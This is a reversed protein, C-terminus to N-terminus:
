EEDSKKSNNILRELEDIKSDLASFRSDIKKERKVIEEEINSKWSFWEKKMSSLIGSDSAIQPSVKVSGKPLVVHVLEIENDLVPHPMGGQQM